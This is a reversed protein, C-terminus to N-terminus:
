REEVELSQIEERIKKLAAQWGRKFARARKDDMQSRNRGSHNWVAKDFQKTRQIIDSATYLTNYDRDHKRWAEAIDGDPRTFTLYHGDKHHKNTALAVPELENNEKAAEECAEVGPGTQFCTCESLKTGCHECTEHDTVRRGGRGTHLLM